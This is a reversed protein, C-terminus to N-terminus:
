FVHIFYLSYSIFICVGYGLTCVYIKSSKVNASGRSIHNAEVNCKEEKSLTCPKIDKFSMQCIYVKRLSLNTYDFLITYHVCAPM